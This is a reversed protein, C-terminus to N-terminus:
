LAFSLGVLFNTRASPYRARELPFGGLVGYEAYDENLLNNIDLFASAKKWQYKLKANLVVYADQDTFSNTWDSIYPREGVYNGNVGVTFPAWREVLVNMGAIHAPVNPIDSGDYMGGDIDTATYTYHVGCRGWSFAQDVTVEVGQRVTDGDMNMNTYLDPNYFIEDATEVHFINAGVATRDGIGFRVGMEYDGSTQPMLGTDIQNQFFNFLEDLVPYRYSRSYSVYVNSRANLQYNLGATYLEEDLETYDPTLVAQSANFTYEAKDYRYGASFSLRDTLSLDDHLYYGINEKELDFMGRSLFGFYESTNTVDEQANTYDLGINLNNKMGMLREQFIVQPTVSLTKIETDGTFYGGAFTAYSRSTRKRYALDIKFLSDTGFYLETGGKVYYDEVDAYDGPTISDTRGVGAATDSDKISGPLGATDKHYGLSLNMGLNDSVAYGFDGGIDRSQHQSNDRYGDTDFYSGNVAYSLNGAGGSAQASAKYTDYSGAVIEGGARFTDGKKTIINVVGGTANDGYLVSARGGRIIEIREVRDLPIQTWDTGSLDAQNTRRGDVLVLTNLAATEGFGRLDVTYSRQGGTIDNVLVGAETRLLAAVDRATSNKIDEETVVSVNAPVSSVEEVHRTATVVVTEMKPAPAQEAVVLGPVAAAGILVASCLVKFRM